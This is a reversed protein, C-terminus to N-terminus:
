QWVSSGTLGAATPLRTPSAGTLNAKTYNTGDITIDVGADTNFTAPVRFRSGNAVNICTGVNYCSLSTTANFLGNGLGTSMSVGTTCGEIYLNDYGFESLGTVIPGLHFLGNSGSALCRLVAFATSSSVSRRTANNIVLAGGTAGSASGTQATWSNAGNWAISTGVLSQMNIGSGTTGSGYFFSSSLSIGVMGSSGGSSQGTTRLDLGTSAGMYSGQSLVLAGGGRYSLGTGLTAHTARFKCSTATLVQNSMSVVGAIGSSASNTFEVGTIQISPGSGSGGTNGTFRAAFTPSTASNIITTPSQIAYTDAASPAATFPAALTLTTATNTAIPRVANIQSGSTMVLFHGILNNVTWTQASDTMVAPTTNSVTTLSGTAAGTAPTVNGLAAGTITLAANLDVDNFVPNETYTGAAMTVTIAHKVFQPVKAIAGTLTACAGTGTTTCANADSGTPDVYLTMAATTATVVGSSTSVPPAVAQSLLILLLTSM